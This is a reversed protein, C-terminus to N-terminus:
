CRIYQKGPLQRVLGKIELNLLYTLVEAVPKGLFETLEDVYIPKDSLLSLIIEEEKSLQVPITTERRKKKSLGLEMLIDEISTIPKAGEKILRNTGASAKSLIGGPVAFVERNQDLAWNVTNMVGSSDGAEVAVVGLSLGSIIRNRKPFNMAFPPTRLNFESVLAGKEAIENQLRKNESPYYVDIGCGLVAITRGKAKLAGIHAQTDVGRALGSVITIGEEALQSALREAVMKGYYTAKRTGIVAIALRDEEKIEGRIFLLPPSSPLGKLNEPYDEDLYSIARINLEKAKRIKERTEEDRKYNVIRKALEENIGEVERLTREKQEFIAEPSKFKGLLNKLRRETMGPISLLDIFPDPEM